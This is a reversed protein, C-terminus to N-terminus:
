AQSAREGEHNNWDPAATDESHLCVISDPDISVWVDDGVPVGRDAADVRLELDAVRVWYETRSGLYRRDRVIGRWTNAAGDAAPAVRNLHVAEPRIVLVAAGRPASDRWSGALRARIHLGGPTATWVSAGDPQIELGSVRVLNSSGVFDAVFLDVPRRYLEEAAGQQVIRGDKMVVIWDSIAMAEVQDHTVYISTIGVEKLIERLDIRVRERIKADLNSLPEDLLLLRPHAVIARAVAVRQQQGGSLEGPYRGELGGLGVVELARSARERRQAARVRQIELPYAVNQYVTMNPWLAYSQFVMGIGRREPPVTYEKKFVPSGGLLIEGGDPDEIGAICRLLTTKGCGSPGLLAVIEGGPVTLSVDDVAAVTGFRKVLRSIVVEAKGRTSGGREDGRGNAASSRRWGQAGAGARSNWM